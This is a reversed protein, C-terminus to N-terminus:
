RRPFLRLRELRTEPPPSFFGLFSARRRGLAIPELNTVPGSGPVAEGHLFVKSIRGARWLFLGAPGDVGSLSGELLLSDGHMVFGGVGVSRFLTTYPFLTSRPPRRIM